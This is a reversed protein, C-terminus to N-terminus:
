EYGECAWFHSVWCDPYLNEGLICEVLRKGKFYDVRKEHEIATRGKVGHQGRLFNALTRLGEDAQYEAPLPDSMDKKCNELSIPDRISIEQILHGKWTCIHCCTGGDHWRMRIVVDCRSIGGFTHDELNRISPTHEKNKEHNELLALPPRNWKEQKELKKEQKTNIIRDDNFMMSSRM